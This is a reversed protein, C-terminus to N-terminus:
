FSMVTNSNFVSINVLIISEKLVPLSDTFKQAGRLHENSSMIPFKDFDEIGDNSNFSGTILLM